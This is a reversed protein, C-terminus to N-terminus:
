KKKKFLNRIALEEAEEADIDKLDIVPPLERDKSKQNNEQNHENRKKKM